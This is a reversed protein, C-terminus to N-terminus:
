KQLNKEYPKLSPEVEPLNKMVLRAMEKAGKANFHTQDTPENALEESAKPGVQNCLEVSAANLDVLPVGQQKAVAKMADAYKLLENDILGNTTFHRRCMPTILVPKAGIARTESIYQVLYQQYDKNADTAEPKPKVATM